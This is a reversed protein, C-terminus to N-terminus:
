CVGQIVSEFLMFSGRRSFAGVGLSYLSTEIQGKM